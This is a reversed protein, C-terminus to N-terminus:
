MTLLWKAQGCDWIRTMGQEQGSDGPFKMRGWSSFGDTWRFSPYEGALSWGLGKLHKGTGYRRDIFTQVTRPKEYKVVFSVLKSFGGVVTTGPATAFRSIDLLRESKKVWKVQIGAVFQDEHVLGYCRGHGKGMLHYDAFFLKNMNEVKCKRAFVRKQNVGLANLSISQVIATKKYIEDSRFFLARYGRKEYAKLKRGHYSRDPNWHENASAESHWYLGDAEIIVKQDPFMLDPRLKTGPLQKDIVFNYGPFMSVVLNTLSSGGPTYAYLLPKAAEYGLNKILKRVLGRGSGIEDAIEQVTKGEYLTCIGKRVKTARTKAKIEPYKQPNDVGYLAVFTEKIKKKVIPSQIPSDTGYREQSTKRINEKVDPDKTHYMGGHSQLSTAMVKGKVEESKCPHDVGYRAQSTAVFKERHDPTQSYNDVGYREQLTDKMKQHIEKNQLPHAVGYKELNTQSRVQNIEEQSRGFVYSPDDKLVELIYSLKQTYRVSSVGAGEVTVSRFSKGNPGRETDFSTVVFRGPSITDLRSQAGELTQNFGELTTNGRKLNSVFTKFKYEKQAGTRTDEILARDDKYSIVRLPHGDEFAADLRLQAELRFAETMDSTVNGRTASWLPKDPNKRLNRLFSNALYTFTVGCRDDRLIVRKKDETKGLFTYHSAVLDIKDQYDM